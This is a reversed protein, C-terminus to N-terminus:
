KLVKTMNLNQKKKNEDIRSNCNINYKQKYIIEKYIRHPM